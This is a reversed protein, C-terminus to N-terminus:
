VPKLEPYIMGEPAYIVHSSFRHEVQQKLANPTNENCGDGDWMGWSNIRRYNEGSKTWLTTSHGGGGQGRYDTVLTRSVSSDWMIGDQVPLGLDLAESILEWDQTPQSAVLKTEFVTKGTPNSPSYSSPYPWEKELPLGQKTAVYQGGSLTSGRDGTIGDKKQSLYYAAARSFYEIRGTALYYCITFILALSHGQCAGQNLQNLPQFLTTPHVDVNFKPSNERAFGLMKRPDMGNEMLMLRSEQGIAYGLQYTPLERDIM